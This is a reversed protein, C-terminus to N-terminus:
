EPLEFTLPKLGFQQVGCRGVLSLMVERAFPYVQEAGKTRLVEYAEEDTYGTLRFVGVHEVTGRFVTTGAEDMAHAFLNLQLEYIEGRSAIVRRGIKVEVNEWDIKAANMRPADPAEFAMRRLGVRRIRFVKAPVDGAAGPQSESVMYQWESRLKM